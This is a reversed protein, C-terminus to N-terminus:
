GLLLIGVSPTRLVPTKQKISRQKGVRELITVVQEFYGTGRWRGGGVHRECEIRM